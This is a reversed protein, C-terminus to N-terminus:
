ILLIKSYRKAGVAANLSILIVSESLKDLLGVYVAALYDVAKGIGVVCGSM